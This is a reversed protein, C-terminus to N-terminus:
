IIDINLYYIKTGPVYEGVAAATLVLLAALGAAPGMRYLSDQQCHPPPHHALNYAADLVIAIKNFM